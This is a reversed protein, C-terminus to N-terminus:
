QDLVVGHHQRGDDNRGAVSPLNLSEIVVKDNSIILRYGEDGLDTMLPDKVLKISNSGARLATVSKLANGFISKRM